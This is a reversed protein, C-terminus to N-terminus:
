AFLEKYLNEYCVSGSNDDSDTGSSEEGPERSNYQAFADELDEPIEDTLLAHLRFINSSPLHAQLDRLVLRIHEIFEGMFEKGRAQELLHVHRPTITACALFSQPNDKTGAMALYDADSLITGSLLGPFTDTRTLVYERPCVRGLVLACVKHFCLAVPVERRLDVDFYYIEDCWSKSHTALQEIEDNGACESDSGHALDFGNPNEAWYQEDDQSLCDVPYWGRNKYYKNYIHVENSFDRTFEKAIGYIFVHCTPRPIIDAYERCALRALCLCTHSALMAPMDSCAAILSPIFTSDYTYTQTLTDERALEM